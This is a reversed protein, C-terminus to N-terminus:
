WDGFDDDSDEEMGAPMYLLKGSKELPPPPVYLHRCSGEGPTIMNNDFYKLSTAECSACLQPTEYGYRKGDTEVELGKDAVTGTAPAEETAETNVDIKITIRLGTATTESSSSVEAKMVKKM